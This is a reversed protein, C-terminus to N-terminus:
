EKRACGKQYGAKCAKEYFSQARALDKTVAKGKEFVVALKYCSRAVGGDCSDSLMQVGKDARMEDDDRLYAAGAAYCAKADAGDVCKQRLMEVVVGDVPVAGAEVCAWADGLGCAQKFLDMAVDEDMGMGQGAMRMRGLSVCSEAHDMECGQRFYHAAKKYDPGSSSSEGTLVQGAHYLGGLRHCAVGSELRCAKKLLGAAKSVDPPGGKGELVLLGLHHCGAANDESCALKLLPVAKSYSAEVGNGEIYAVGLQTCAQVDGLNCGKQNLEAARAPDKRTLVGSSLEAALRSCAPGDKLTCGRDLLSVVRRAVRDTVDQEELLYFALERCSKGDDDDCAKGLALERGSKKVAADARPAVLLTFAALALWAPFRSTM